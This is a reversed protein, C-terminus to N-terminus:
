KRPVVVTWGALDFISMDPTGTLGKASLLGVFFLTIIGGGVDDAMVGFGKHLKELHRLPFIKAIDWLRYIFFAVAIREWSQDWVYPPFASVAISAGLMKDIVILNYDAETFFELALTCIFSGILYCGMYVFFLLLGNLNMKRLTTYYIILGVLAGATGPAGPTYGVYFGTAFLRVAADVFKNREVVQKKPKNFGLPGNM